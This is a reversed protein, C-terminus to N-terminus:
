NKNDLKSKAYEAIGIVGALDGLKAKKLKVTKASISFATEKIKKELPTLLIEGLNSVGGGIIIIEPNLLTTINGLWIGINNILHNLAKKAIKDNQKLRKPIEETSIGFINKIATGSATQEFIEGNILRTQGFEGAGGNKGLFLKGNEIIAGGIGTSITVYFMSEINEGAGKKAEGLAAARADNLIVTEVETLQKFIQAVEVNKWDKLNPCDYVLGKKHNVPGPVAIGIQCCDSFSLCEQKLLTKMSNLINSIVYDKGKEQETPIKIKSILDGQMNFLATLIKTGGLDTGLIFNRNM